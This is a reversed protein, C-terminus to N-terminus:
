SGSPVTSPTHAIEKELAGLRSVISSTPCAAKCAGCRICEPGDVEAEPDLDMPCVKACSHCSVCSGHDVHMRYLSVRNFLSYFAGLPCLYKCFPRSVLMSLVVVLVLIAFKWSFVFGIMARLQPNTSLLPLAGELTGAPCLWKCFYPASQGDGKMLLPLGVVLVIAVVYKLWRLSRDLRRPLHLKPLPIRHLLDQIFGFPCFLGCVLRGLVTGFLVLLGMVYFSLSRSRGGIVTQLAGVPCSAVAGPCSYCNLWPVCVAKTPGGFVRGQLFGPLYGNTIVATMAQKLLRRRAHARVRERPTAAAGRNDAGAGGTM